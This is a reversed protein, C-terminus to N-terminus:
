VTAIAIVTSNPLPLEPRDRLYRAGLADADWLEVDSFGAEGLLQAVQEKTYSAIVPENAAAVTVTATAHVAEGLPDLAEAGLLFDVVLTTGPRKSAIAHLTAETVSRQLYMTVGMWSWTARDPLDLDDIRVRELDGAVFRVNPPEALGARRLAVRKWAQTDPHDIEWIVFDRARPHRWAFSDLGAGLLVYERRGALLGDIAVDEALRARVAHAVRFARRVEPIWAAMSAELEEVEAADLLQEAITDEFIWPPPDERMHAARLLGSGMASRSARGAEM